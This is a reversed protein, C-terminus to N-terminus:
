RGGGAPLSKYTLVPRLVAIVRLIGATELDAVVSEANKYAEPAEEYLLNRDLAVVRGGFRTRRLDEPSFRAELRQRAGTRDWKRGAGHAASWLNKAQDGTPEVLYSFAGRSGALVFPAGTETEAAGKRHLWCGPRGPSPRLANHCNEAVLEGTTGAAALFGAAALRRNLKAWALLRDHRTLYEAGAPSAPDLGGKPTTELLAQGHSRSGTHLLLWLCKGEVGLEAAREPLRLEELAQLEAFHNGAGLSGLDRRLEEPWDAPFDFEPVALPVAQLKREFRALKSWNVPLKTRYLAMGCGADGGVLEPYLVGRTELAMGIPYAPGPHLDPMGAAATVGPLSAARKLQDIARGEM